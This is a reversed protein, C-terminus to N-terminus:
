RTVHWPAWSGLRPVLFRQGLTLNRVDPVKSSAVVAAVFVHNNFVDTTQPGDGPGPNHTEQGPKQAHVTYPVNGHEVGGSSRSYVYDRWTNSAYSPTLPPQATPASRGGKARM